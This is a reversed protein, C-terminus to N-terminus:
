DYLIVGEVVRSINGSVSPSDPSLGLSISKFLGLLQAVFVYSVCGYCAPLDVPLGIEVCLDGCISADAPAKPCVM